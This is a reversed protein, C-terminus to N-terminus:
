SSKVAVFRGKGDRWVRLLLLNGSVSKRAKLAEVVSGVPQRGIETIVDGSRLDKSAAESDPDVQTVVVGQLDNDVDLLRRHTEDLDEVTVGEILDGPRSRDRGNLVGDKSPISGPGDSPLRGITVTLTVEKGDRLVVLGVKSGPRLSSVYLRTKSVDDVEQGDVTILVDGHKVGAAEAPTDPFVRDILVGRDEPVNLAEAVDPALDRLMVGLFGREIEGNGILQDTVDLVMNVPIAFGIGNSGGARSIIATNIGVLRGRNDVLAGGSNGPNISADTQIFNGYDVIGEGTRGLGSVIGTSVTQSLGFPNGVALVIDGVKLTSSDAATMTPLDKAEIKLVALDTKPDQGVVTAEYRKKNNALTVGIEEAGDVVHNNTVVYGDETLIVGSGLVSQKQKPVVSPKRPASPPRNFPWQFFPDNFFPHNEFLDPIQFSRMDVERSTSISVVSPAVRDVIEAYGGLPGERDPPSADVSLRQSLPRSGDDPPNGDLSSLVGVLALAAGAGISLALKSRSNEMLKFHPTPYNMPPKLEEFVLAPRIEM